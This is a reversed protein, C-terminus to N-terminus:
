KKAVQQAKVYSELLPQYNPMLKSMIEAYKVADERNWTKQIESAVALTTIPIVGAMMMRNITVHQSNESIDGCADIVVFVEFGEEIAAIALLAVGISTLVGAIVLKKKGTNRVAERFALTDWPNLGCTRPVYHAYADYKQLESILPGHPGEPDCATTILPINEIVALKSLVVVNSRLTTVDIDKIMQFLGSQHNILLFITDGSNIRTTKKEM